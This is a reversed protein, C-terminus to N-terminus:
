KNFMRFVGVQLNLFDSLKSGIQFRCICVVCLYMFYLVVFLCLVCIMFIVVDRTDNTSEVILVVVDTCAEEALILRVVVLTAAVNLM